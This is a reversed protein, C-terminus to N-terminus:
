EQELYRAFALDCDIVHDILWHKLATLSNFDFQRGGEEIERIFDQLEALLMAHDRHHDVLEPYDHERMISEEDKFHQRTERLLQHVLSVTTVPSAPHTDTARLRDAMTNILSALQLHQRDIEDICLHWEDLWELFSNV